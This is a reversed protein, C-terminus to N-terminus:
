TLKKKQAVDIRLLARMLAARAREIDIDELKREAKALRDEARAKAALAREVDIEEARECGEALIIVKEPGVEAYGWNLVLFWREDVKRYSMEGLKLTTLFPTHGPLAGFEGEIGPSVVEDVEESMVLRYPTVIELLLKNAM